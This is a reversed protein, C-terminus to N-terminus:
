PKPQAKPPVPEAAPQAQAQGRVLQDKALARKFVAEKDVLPINVPDDPCTTLAEDDPTTDPAPPDMDLNKLQLTNLLNGSAAQYRAHAILLDQEGNLYNRRATYYENETDLVDLLTRQGIDFQRRFAERAKDTSLMHQDLYKLQESLRLKDNFAMAATQRVDRCVKERLDRASFKEEEAKRQRSYDQFGRFLNWTATVGVTTANTTGTTLAPQYNQTYGGSNLDRTQEAYADVRPYYGAKQVAVNRQASLINQFAAKLAPSSQLSREIGKARDQPFDRILATTTAPAVLEEPPLVGVIRQFRATVDHLNATETLLNSEALALRGAATEFDVKRGVGSDAREKIKSYLLRHTAYNEEAFDVLQRYRWVDIYAKSAELAATESLDLMEYFRVLSAHELRKSDNLTAFGEFLNQRLQWKSGQINYSREGPPTFLPSNRTERGVGYVVDLTPLYRGLTVDRERLSAGFQHWKNLVEPNTQVAKAAADELRFEAAHVSPFTAALLVAIATTHFLRPM